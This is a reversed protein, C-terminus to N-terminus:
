ARREHAALVEAASSTNGVLDGTFEAEPDEAKRKKYEDFLERYDGAYNANKQTEIRVESRKKMLKEHLEPLGTFTALSVRSLAAEDGGQVATFFTDVLQQEPATCSSFLLIALAVFAYHLSRM